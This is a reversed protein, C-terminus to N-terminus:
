KLNHAIELLQKGNYYGLSKKILKGDSDIFLLSPHNKLDYKKVIELGVHDESNIELSIFNKNFYKAVDPETFTTTKLLKCPGCWTAYVDLFILKNEEKAKTMAEKLSGKYFNMEKNEKASDFSAPRFGYGLISILIFGLILSAIIITKKM